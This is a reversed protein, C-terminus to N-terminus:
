VQIGFVDSFASDYDEELNPNGTVRLARFVLRYSGNPITSGNLFTTKIPIFSYASGEM